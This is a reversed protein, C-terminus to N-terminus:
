VFKSAIGRLPEPLLDEPGSPQEFLDTIEIEEYGVAYRWSRLGVIPAKVKRALRLAEDGLGTPVFLFLPAVDALLLWEKMAREETVTEATEVQGLIAAYNEPAEVVVIDPYAPRGNPLRVGMTKDPHNVYTKLHPNAETPFGFRGKAIDQVARLHIAGQVEGRTTM